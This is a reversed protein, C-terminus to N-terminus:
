YAKLALLGIVLAGTLIVSLTQATLSVSASVQYEQNLFIRGQVGVGFWEPYVLYRLGMESFFRDKPSSFLVKDLRGAFGLSLHPILRSQSIHQYGAAFAYSYHSDDSVSKFQDPVKGNILGMPTIKIYEPMSLLDIDLFLRRYENFDDYRPQLRFKFGYSYPGSQWTGFYTMLELFSMEKAFAERKEKTETKQALERDLIGKILPHNIYPNVQENSGCQEVFSHVSKLKDEESVVKSMNLAISLEEWTVQCELKRQYQDQWDKARKKAQKVLEPYDEYYSLEMWKSIKSEISASRQDDLTLAEDYKKLLAIPLNLDSIAEIKVLSELPKASSSSRSSGKVLNLLLLSSADKLHMSLQQINQGEASQVGILRGDQVHHLKIMAKYTQQDLLMLNGSLIYDSQLLRGVTVECEGLCQNLIEPNELMESINERTMLFYRNGLIQSANQRIEDSLLLLEETKIADQQYPVLELVALRPQNQAYLWSHFIVIFILIQKTILRHIYTM